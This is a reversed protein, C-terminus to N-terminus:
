DHDYGWRKCERYWHQRSNKAYAREEDSLDTWTEVKTLYMDMKALRQHALRTIEATYRGPEPEPEPRNGHALGILAGILLSVLVLLTMLLILIFPPIDSM